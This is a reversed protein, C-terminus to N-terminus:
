KIFTFSYPELIKNKQTLVYEGSLHTETVKLRVFGPVNGKKCTGAVLDHAAERGSRTIVDCNKSVRLHKAM